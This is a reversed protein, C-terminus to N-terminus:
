NRTWNDELGPTDNTVHIEELGPTDNTVHIEELGPTDNTVHIEELGPTDNTVHIEELGPTDNTVHIEELGPTGNTVHIEELGPTGNTVNIEERATRDGVLFSTPMMKHNDQSVSQVIDEKENAICLCTHTCRSIELDLNEIIQAFTGQEENGQLWSEGNKILNSIDNILDELQKKMDALGDMHLNIIKVQRAPRMQISSRM